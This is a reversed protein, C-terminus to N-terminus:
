RGADDLFGKLANAMDKPEVPLVLTAWDDNGGALSREGTAKGKFYARLKEGTVGDACQVAVHVRPSEVFSLGIAAGHGKALLPQWEKKAFKVIPKDSWRASETAVWAAADKPVREGITDRLAQSVGGGAIDKESLGFVWITDSVRAMQMTFKDLQVEYRNPKGNPKAKLQELFAAEDPLPQRFVLAIGIRPEEGKDPLYVGAAIHDIHQLTIGAKALAGLASAPVGNKTLLGVPDQETREAYVLLPGPQIAFVINSNSPLYGLGKLELPSTVVESPPLEIPPSPVNKRAERVKWFVIGGIVLFILLLVVLAQKLRQKVFVGLDISVAPKRTWAPSAPTAADERGRVAFAEGCRPCTARGADHDFAHNCYPCSVPSSM